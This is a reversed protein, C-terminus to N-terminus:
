RAALEVVMAEFGAWDHVDRAGAVPENWPRVFRCVLADPQHRVLGPLVTPSDDLYADCDVRWKDALFHIETTPLRMDALWYLTDAHAWKPKSTLIVVDHGARDLRDLTPLAEPFTGLNRFISPRDRGRAWHWFAGMHPFGGVEHLGDWTQVMDPHLNSGFEDAHLAMWGENFDAVVGDLDIGLRM